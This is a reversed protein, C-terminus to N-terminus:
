IRKSYIKLDSANFGASELFLSDRDDEALPVSYIQDIGEGRAQDELAGVLQKGIGARRKSPDVAMAVIRAGPPLGYATTQRESLLFGVMGSEDEAVFCGWPPYQLWDLEIISLLREVYTDWTASRDNGQIRLDLSRVAESDTQRIPRIDILRGEM